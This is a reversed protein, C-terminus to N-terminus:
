AFWRYMSVVALGLMVSLVAIWALMSHWVLITVIRDPLPYRCSALWVPAPLLLVVALSAALWPSFDALRDLLPLTLAVVIGYLSIEVLGHPDGM